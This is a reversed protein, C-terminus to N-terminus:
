NRGNKRNDIITIIAVGALLLASVLRLYASVITFLTAQGHLSPNFLYDAVYFGVMLLCYFIPAFVYGRFRPIERGVMIWAVFAAAFVVANIIQLVDLFIMPNAADWAWTRQGTESRRRWGCM